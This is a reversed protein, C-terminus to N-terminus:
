VSFSDSDNLFFPFFHAKPYYSILFEYVKKNVVFLPLQCDFVEYTVNLDHMDELAQQTIYYYPEGSPTIYEDDTYEVYGCKECILHPKWRNVEELKLMTHQPTIQYYVIEGLKNRIPRFDKETIEFNKILEDHLKCDVGFEYSSLISCPKKCNSRPALYDTSQIHYGCHECIEKEYAGIAIDDYFYVFSEFSIAFAVAMDLNDYLKEM